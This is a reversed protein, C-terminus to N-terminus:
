VVEPDCISPKLLRLKYEPFSDHSILEYVIDPYGVGYGPYKTFTRRSGDVIDM